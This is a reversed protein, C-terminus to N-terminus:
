IKWVTLIVSPIAPVVGTAAQQKIYAATNDVSWKIEAYDGAAFTYVFNWAAILEATSGQIAVENASYPVDIGNVSLWIYIHHSAGSSQDLQASFAINYTGAYDFVIHKDSSQISIGNSEAVTNYKMSASAGATLQTQDTTDYASIYIPSGFASGGIDITNALQLIVKNGSAVYDFTKLQLVGSQTGSEAWELFYKRDSDKLIISM